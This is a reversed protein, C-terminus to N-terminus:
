AESESMELRVSIKSLWVNVFLLVLIMDADCPLWVNVFLLELIM